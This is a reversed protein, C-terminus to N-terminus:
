FYTSFTHKSQVPMCPNCTCGERFPGGCSALLQPKKPQNQLKPGPTTLNGGRPAWLPGGPHGQPVLLAGQPVLLAGRCHGIDGIPHWSWELPYCKTGFHALFSGFLLPFAVKTRFHFVQPVLLSGIETQFDGKPCMKQPEKREQLM